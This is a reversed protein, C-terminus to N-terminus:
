VAASLGAQQLQLQFDHPSSSAALADAIAVRGGRVLHLLSQDFTTM